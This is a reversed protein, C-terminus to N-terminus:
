PGAPRPALVRDYLVMLLTSVIGVVGVVVWMQNPNASGPGQIYHAVLKGGLAGAFFTGIAIPLFAFGMYTGVQNKPALNAVYEYYRPAQIGEGLAFVMLGFAAPAITPTLEVPAV